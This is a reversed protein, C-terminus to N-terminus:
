LCHRLQLGARHSCLAGHLAQIQALDNPNGSLYVSLLAISVLSATYTKTAAVAKEDGAHLLITHKAAQALPSDAYNTIALTPCGQQNAEKLVATVDPSQGSQSIGVVLAGSFNPPKDYLTFLSPTALAIQLQNHAGFLYKAYRAANDSTGRAAIVVYEFTDRLESSIRAIDESEREILRQIVQPQELIESELVSKWM